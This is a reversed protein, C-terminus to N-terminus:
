EEMPFWLSQSPDHFDCDDPNRGTQRCWAAFAHDLFPFTGDMTSQLSLANGDKLHLEIVTSGGTIAYLRQHKIDSFRYIVSKKGFTTLLFSDADYFVGFTIYYGILGAGMLVAIVGGIVLVAGSRLGTFIACIGLFALILGFVAYRRSVRVSLGSRHQARSRFTKTFFRDVLYCIGFTTGAVVLAPIIEM